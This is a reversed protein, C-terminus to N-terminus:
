DVLVMAKGTLCVSLLRIRTRLYPDERRAFAAAIRSEFFDFDIEEDEKRTLVWGLGKNQVGYYGKAVFRRDRDILRVISGEQTLVEPNLIADKLILPYGKKMDSINRANVQLDITKTMNDDMGDNEGNDCTKAQIAFVFDFALALIFGVTLALLSRSRAPAKM